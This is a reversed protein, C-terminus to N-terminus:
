IDSSTDQGENNGERERNREEERQLAAVGLKLSHKMM